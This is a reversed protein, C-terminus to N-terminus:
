WGCSAVHTLQPVLSTISLYISLMQNFILFEVRKIIDRDVTFLFHVVKERM